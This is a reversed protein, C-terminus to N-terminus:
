YGIIFRSRSKLLAHIVNAVVVSGAFTLTAGLLFAFFGPLSSPVLGPFAERYVIQVLGHLFFIAFSREAIYQFMPIRRDAFRLLLSLMLGTQLCKQVVFIDVGAFTFVEPKHRNNHNGDVLVKLLTALTVVIALGTTHRKLFSFVEERYLSVLIGGLYVPAFYLVSHVPNDNQAPRHVLMSVFLAVGTMAFQSAPKLGIFQIFVPSATFVLLIFPVYWHGVVARGTVLYQVYLLGSDLLGGPAARYFEAPPAQGCVWLAVICYGTTLVLYPTGVNIFKTRVFSRQSFRPFFTNHFFFGSILVFLTTGGTILTAVLEEPVSDIAWPGYSHGMVILIIAIARLNDFVYLRVQRSEAM